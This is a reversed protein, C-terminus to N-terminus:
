AIYKGANRRGIASGLRSALAPQVDELDLPSSKQSHAAFLQTRVLDASSMLNVAASAAAPAVSGNTGAGAATTQAALSALAVSGTSWGATSSSPDVVATGQDVAAFLSDAAAAHSSAV